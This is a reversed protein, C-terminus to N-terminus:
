NIVSELRVGIVEEIQLKKIDADLQSNMLRTMQASYNRSAESYVEITVSGDNFRKEIQLFAAHIDDTVQREMLVVSNAVRWSKYKSLIDTRIKLAALIQNDESIRVEEKASKVQVGKSLITGIPIVIGYFFKPYVYTVNNATAPQKFSQDNFQLNLTLLDFWSNKMQTVKYHAMTVARTVADYAVNQLALTVLREEVGTDKIPLSRIPRKSVPPTYPSQRPQGQNQEQAKAATSAILLTLAILLFYGTFRNAIQM